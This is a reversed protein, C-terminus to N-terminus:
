QSKKMVAKPQKNIIITKPKEIPKSTATKKAPNVKRAPIPNTKLPVPTNATLSAQASDTKSIETQQPLMAASINQITSRELLEKINKQLQISDIVSTTGKKVGIVQGNFQVDVASYKNFGTKTLVQKYFILLRGLKEDINQASGIKIIHNGIVPVLEFKREPTIDIQGIQANWFDNNYIFQVIKKVDNLLASDKATFKKANTFGTVVPLRVSGKELLPMRKGASDMYFSTGGSTIIRAIPEREVVLIHLTNERDFYLEADKIWQNNELAKELLALRIKSIPRGILSGNSIKEAQKIIDDQEIYFKEGTGSITVKLTKCLKETGKSNAAILLTTIGSIVLFWAALVFIKKIINKKEM